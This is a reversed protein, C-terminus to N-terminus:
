RVPTRNPSAKGGNGKGFRRGAEINSSKRNRAAYPDPHVAARGDDGKEFDGHIDEHMDANGFFEFGQTSRAMRAVAPNEGIDANAKEAIEQYQKEEVLLLGKFVKDVIMKQRKYLQDVRMPLDPICEEVLRKSMLLMHETLFFWLFRTSFSYADLLDSTFFVMGGNIIIAATTMVEVFYFWAGIDEAKDPFPRRFYTMKFADVHLEIINNLYCFLPAAPFAVVFLTVYGYNLIMENYDDFAEIESYRKLKQEYEAQEYYKEAAMIKRKRGKANDVKKSNFICYEIMLMMQLWLFPRIVEYANTGIRVIWIFSLSLRLESMCDPVGNVMQCGNCKGSRQVEAWYRATNDNWTVGSAYLHQQYWEWNCPISSPFFTFPNTATPAFAAIGTLALHDAEASSPTYIGGEIHKKLFAIYFLGFYSNLFQFVFAKTVKNREYESETRHNEMKTLRIGVEKYLYNFTTIQFANVMGAVPAGWWVQRENVLYFKLQFVLGIVSVAFFLLVFVILNMKLRQRFYRRQSEHWAEKMNTVPNLRMRGHFQPRAVETMGMEYTGWWFALRATKRRWLETFSVSWMVVWCGFAVYMIGRTTKWQESSDKAPLFM